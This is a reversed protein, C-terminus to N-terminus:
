KATFWPLGVKGSMVAEYAQQEGDFVVAQLINFIFLFDLV